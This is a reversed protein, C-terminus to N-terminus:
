NIAIWHIYPSRATTDNNFIRVKCGSVTVSHVSCSLSGCGYGTSSSMFGAVVHPAASFKNPFTVSYDAYTHSSINSVTISGHQLMGKHYVEYNTATVMTEGEYAAVEHPNSSIKITENGMGASIYTGGKHHGYYYGFEYDSSSTTEYAGIWLNEGNYAVGPFINNDSDKLALSCPAGGIYIEGAQIYTRQTSSSGTKIILGDEDLMITDNGRTRTLWSGTITWGGISGGTATLLNTNINGASDIYTGSNTTDSIGTKNGLSIIGETIKLGFSGIEAAKTTTGPKYFITTAGYDAATYNNRVLEIKDTIRVGDASDGEPHIFIGNSVTTVYNTATKEANVAKNYAQKAAEYSSSKSVASWSVGGDTFSTLDCSYLSNTSTGDYAPEATNWGTPVTQSAVYAKGQAETPQSPASASSAIRYFRWVANVDREKSITISERAKVAM